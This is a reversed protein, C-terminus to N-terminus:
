ALMCLCLQLSHLRDECPPSGVCRTYVLSMHTCARCSEEISMERFFPLWPLLSMFHCMSNAHTCVHCVVHLGDEQVPRASPLSLCRRHTCEKRFCPLTVVGHTHTACKCSQLPPPLLSSRASVVALSMTTLLLSAHHLTMWVECCSWTGFM